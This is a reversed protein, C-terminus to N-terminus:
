RDLRAKEDGAAAEIMHRDVEAALTNLHAALRDFLERKRHETALDRILACEAADARLKEAQAKLETKGASVKLKLSGISRPDASPGCRQVKILGTAADFGLVAQVVDVSTRYTVAVEDEGLADLDILEGAPKEDFRSMWYSQLEDRGSLRKDGGCGCFIAADESYLNLLEPSKARYTDLWDVASAMSDFAM